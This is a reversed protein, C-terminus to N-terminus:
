RRVRIHFHWPSVSSWSLVAAQGGGVEGQEAQHPLHGLHLATPELASKVTFFDGARVAGFGLGPGLM